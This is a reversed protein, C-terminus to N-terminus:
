SVLSEVQEVVAGDINIPALEARRKTYDVILEKTKSVNLFLHNNDQCWMALERVKKYAAEDNDTVLGEVTTNDANKIIINSDQKAM